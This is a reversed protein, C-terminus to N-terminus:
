KKPQEQLTIGEQGLLSRIQSDNGRIAAEALLRVVGQNIQLIAQGQMVQEARQAIDKQKMRNATAVSVNVVLLIIALFGLLVTAPYFKQM